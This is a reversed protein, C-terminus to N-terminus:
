RVYLIQSRYRRHDGLRNVAGGDLVAHGGLSGFANDLGDEVGGPDGLVFLPIAPSPIRDPQTQPFRAEGGSSVRHQRITVPTLHILRRRHPRKSSPGRRSCYRRAATPPASIRDTMDRSRTFAVGRGPPRRQCNAAVFEKDDYERFRALPTSVDPTQARTRQRRQCRENSDSTSTRHLEQSM